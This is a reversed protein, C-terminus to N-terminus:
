RAIGSLVVEATPLYSDRSLLERKVLSGDRYVLRYGESSLGNAGHFQVQRAGAPLSPDPITRTPYPRTALVKSEILVEQGEPADGYLRFTVSGGAAESRILLHGGTTNRVKLDELGQAIAADQSAPIYAVALQHPHREMIELNARLAAGYLTTAVQCVGGGVGPVLQGGVIVYAEKWGRETDIPGVTANYSLIEGPKLMLDDFAHAAREVNEARPITPDYSTTWEAILRRIRLAELSARTVAAQPRALPLSLRTAAGLRELAAQVAETDLRIGPVDPLIVPRHEKIELRANVPERVLQLRVPALAADLRERDWVALIEVELRPRRWPMRQWRPLRDRAQALQAPVNQRPLSRGLEALRFSWAKGEAELTVTRDQEAEAKARVAEALAPFERGAAAVSGGAWVEYTPPTLWVWTSGAALLLTAAVVAVARAIVRAVGTRPHNPRLEM